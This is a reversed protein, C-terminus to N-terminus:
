WTMALRSAIVHKKIAAYDFNLLFQEANDQLLLKPITDNNTISKVWSTQFKMGRSQSLLLFLIINPLCIL